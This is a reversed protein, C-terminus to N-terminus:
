YYYSNSPSIEENSPPLHFIRILHDNHTDSPYRYWYHTDPDYGTYGDNVYHRYISLGPTNPRELDRADESWCIKVIEVQFWVIKGNGFIEGIQIMYEGPLDEKTLKTTVQKFEM